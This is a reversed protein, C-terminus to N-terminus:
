QDYQPSDRKMLKDLNWIVSEANFLSGDHFKVGDRLKFTWVTRQEPDASWSVALAPRLTAAVDSRSLDWNILADYATVGMFRVGEGGQSPQGTTLPVDAATMAVRLVKEAAFAPAPLSAAAASAILSQNFYRRPVRVMCSSRVFSAHVDAVRTG